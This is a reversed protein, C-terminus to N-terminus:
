AQSSFVYSVYVSSISALLSSAEPSAEPSHTSVKIKWKQITGIYWKQLQTKINKKLFFFLIEVHTQFIIFFHVKIFPNKGM